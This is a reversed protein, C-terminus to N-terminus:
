AGYESGCDNPLYYGDMETEYNTCAPPQVRCDAMVRNWNEGTIVRFMLLMANSVYRFNAHPGIQEGFKVNGFVQMGIIGYVFFLMFLLAAVNLLAPLSVMLTM